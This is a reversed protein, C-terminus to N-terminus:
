HTPHLNKTPITGLINLAQRFGTALTLAPGRGYYHLFIIRPNEGFMHNHLAVVELNNERLVKIVANVEGELMAIDGAIHASEKDGAFSAWSNLGIASTMEAGMAIVSLDDRGVTYKYTPGNVIGTYKVAGDLTSLDFLDKATVAPLSAPAPQNKPSIKADKITSAFKKALDEPTGMGHLHMYFIRPQEYFFHNHIAGIELGSAQAASILPNVEEELLVTDSMLVASKGDVTKKISVWGGFGFPIPVPEGKITLKLDNRPLPTTHVSQGENYNGKKGIATEIASIEEKTLPPTKASLNKAISYKLGLLQVTGALGSALLWNRRSFITDKSM